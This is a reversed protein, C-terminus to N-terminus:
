VFGSPYAARGCKGELPRRPSFTAVFAFLLGSCPADIEVRLAKEYFERAVDLWEDWDHSTSAMLAQFSERIQLIYHYINKM